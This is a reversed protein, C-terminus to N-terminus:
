NKVEEMEKENLSLIEELDVLCEPHIFVMGMSSAHQEETSTGCFFCTTVQNINM